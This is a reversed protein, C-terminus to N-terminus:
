EQDSSQPLMIPVQFKIRSVVIDRDKAGGGGGVGFGAVKISLSGKTESASDTTVAVDFDVFHVLNRSTTAFYKGKPASDAGYMVAPNIVDTKTPHKGPLKTAVQANKVGDIIQKLSTEIFEDLNM